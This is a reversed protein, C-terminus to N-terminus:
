GPALARSVIPSKERLARAGRGRRLHPPKWGFSTGIEFITTPGIFERDQAPLNVPM